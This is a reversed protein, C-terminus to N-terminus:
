ILTEVYLFSSNNKKINWGIGIGIGIGFLLMEKRKCKRGM